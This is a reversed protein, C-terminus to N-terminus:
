LCYPVVGAYNGSLQICFSVFFTAIITLNLAFKMRSSLRTEELLNTMGVIMYPSFFAQIRLLMPNQGFVVGMIAELCLCILITWGVASEEREKKLFFCFACIVIIAMSVLAKRGQSNGGFVGYNKNLLVSLYLYEYRPFLKLVRPLVSAISNLCIPIGILLRLFRKLNWRYLYIPYIIIMVVGITHILTAIVWFLVSIVYKKKDLYIFALLAFSLALYQRSVNWANFYHYYLIFFIISFYYNKSYLRLFKFHIGIIIIANIFLFIRYNAGFLLFCIKCLLRYVPFGSSYISYKRLLPADGFIYFLVRYAFTDTGVDVSRIGMLVVLLIAVTYLFFVNRKNRTITLNLGAFVIIGTVFIIYFLM